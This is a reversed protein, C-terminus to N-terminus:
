LTLLYFIYKNQVCKTNVNESKPAESITEVEAVDSGTQILVM